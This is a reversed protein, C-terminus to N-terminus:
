LSVVTCRWGGASWWRGGANWRRGGAGWGPLPVRFVPFMFLGNGKGPRFSIQLLMLLMVGRSGDMKIGTKHNVGPGM